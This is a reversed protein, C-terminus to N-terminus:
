LDLRLHQVLELYILYWSAIGARIRVNDVRQVEPNENIRQKNPAESERSCISHKSLATM